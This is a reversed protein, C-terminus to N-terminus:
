PQAWAAYPQRQWVKSVSAQSGQAMAINIITSPQCPQHYPNSIVSIVNRFPQCLQIYNTLIPLNTLLFWEHFQVLIAFILLSFRWVPVIDTTQNQSKSRCLPLKLNLSDLKWKRRQCWNWNLLTIHINNIYVNIYITLAIHIHYLMIRSLIIHM